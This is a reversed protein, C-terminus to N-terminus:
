KNYEEPYIAVAIEKMAKVINHNAYSSTKNDIQYVTSNKVAAIESFGARSKIEDVPNDIYDVNTLIVDPNAAVVNEAAVAVWGKQDALINKAGIIDLIENLFVDSGFSYMDPAAAIEFYVSKKDKITKGIATYKAIEKDMTDILKQGETSKDTANAIFLIDERIEAISASTPIYTVCAGMDKLLKLPDDGDTKSMGTAFIIDADLSALKEADPNMIDFTPLTSDDGFLGVSYTDVAVIKDKLGLDILVQTTSPALSIIKDVKKPIVIENGERDKTPVSTTASTAAKTKNSCGTFVVMLSMILLVTVLKKFRKM